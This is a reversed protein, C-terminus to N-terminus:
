LTSDSSANTHNHDFIFNFTDNAFNQVYTSCVKSEQPFIDNLIIEDITQAHAGCDSGYLLFSVIVFVPFKM